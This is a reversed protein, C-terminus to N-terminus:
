IAAYYRPPAVGPIRTSNVIDDISCVSPASEGLAQHNASSSARWVAGTRLSTTVTALLGATM